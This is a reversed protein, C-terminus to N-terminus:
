THKFIRVFNSTLRHMLFQPELEWVHANQIFFQWHAIGNYKIANIIIGRTVEEVNAKSINESIENLIGAVIVTLIEKKKNKIM